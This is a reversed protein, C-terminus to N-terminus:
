KMEEVTKTMQSLTKEFEVLKKLSVGNNAQAFVQFFDDHFRRHGEYAIKGKQTLALFFARQDQQDPIKVLMGCALLKSIKQSVAGKTVSLREALSSVSIKGANGIAEIIHIEVCHLLDDTGFCRPKAELHSYAKSLTSIDEIIKRFIDSENNM